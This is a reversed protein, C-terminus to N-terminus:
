EPTLALSGHVCTAQTRMHGTHAHSGHTYTPRTRMRGTCAHSGHACTVYTRIHGICAHSGLECTVRACTIPVYVLARSGHMYVDRVVQLNCTVLTRLHIVRMQGALARNCQAHTRTVQSFSRTFRTRIEGRCAVNFWQVLALSGHM